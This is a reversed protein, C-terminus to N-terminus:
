RRVKCFPIHREAATENFRRSCYPCQIYDPNTSPAPPPPLPLGAAMARKTQRANRIADILETHQQRWNVRSPQSRQAAPLRKAPLPRYNKMETGSHVISIGVSHRLFTGVKISETVKDFRLRNECEKCQQFAYPIQWLVWM